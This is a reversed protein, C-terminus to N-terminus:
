RPPSVEPQRPSRAPTPLHEWSQIILRRTRFEGFEREEARKLAGFTEFDCEPGLIDSPDLLYRMEDRTLGFLDRAVLVDIEARIRDRDEAKESPAVVAPELGLLAAVDHLFVRMEAGTGSLRLARVAVAVQLASNNYTRPLPLGDVLFSSMILGVKKRALYDICLSNAVGLWWLSLLPSPPDFTITPVNNGCAVGGPVLAAVLSRSNTPSAVGCFAIRFMRYRQRLKEPIDKAAIRWQPKIAKDDSGFELGRWEAKRARGSVYAKARHDFAAIMRGEYVPVGTDGDNFFKRDGTMNIEQMYRPTPEDPLDSGFTPLADYLKQVITIDNPHAIEAIALADPSFERVQAVPYLMLNGGRVKDLKALTNVGFAARFCDTRGRGAAVYICFKARSDIAPFWIGRSNEFGILMEFNFNDFLASRIDRANSSNYLHEPVVQAAAGNLRVAMLALEVFGRYTNLGGGSFAESSAFTYRGSYRVFASADYIARAYVNWADQMGPSGLLEAVRRDEDAPKMFRIEPDYSSFWEKINPTMKDWPPNGIVLDFGGKSFVDAFALPWHFFRHLEAVEKACAVAEERPKQGRAAKDLDSTLPVQSASQPGKREFFAACFLDARLRAAVLSPEQQAAALAVRKREVQELTDEPLVEAALVSDAAAFLPLSRFEIVRKKNEKRLAAATRKDDGERVEFAADPIGEDLLTLDFLGILADGCCIHADLFSLPRGPVVTEIWLATKCLEVAMPNRDVGYICHAIVDRLAERYESMSPTGTARVKAVQSAIRRAAGLLFHGSGCAPDVVTLQLLATAPDKHHTALTRAILPEAAEDLLTQVLVDNTYFSSSLKRANGKADGTAAFGFTREELSVQPLLELLSEYISGLEEPGMDRWNVRAIGGEERLWSLRFLADLLFHNEIKCKDIVPCQNEAFLGGLAPLALRPEGHAVSRLVIRVGDWIDSFRDRASRRISRERLARISYAESYLTKASDSCDSPHLLGREEVALLFILRYVLRLLQQFYAQTSLTGNSLSQRLAINDRHTTFGQGLALLASEVGDRLDARARVGEKRGITRWEELWCDTLSANGQGFRSEHLLLWLVVFDAFREETFLRELDVEIWAPKTLSANERLLRLQLGDAAIGWLGSQRENLYEQVLGFCSRRRVGDGFQSSPADLGHGAAAIAIPVRGGALLTIPYVHDGFSISSERQFPKLAFVDRLIASVFKQTLSLGDTACPLGAKFEIWTAQAIRWYRGIEDRINLGKPITYDSDRQGPAELQAIRSLWESSLLGGEISLSEFALQTQKRSSRRAIM